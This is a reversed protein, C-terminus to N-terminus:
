GEMKKLPAAAVDKAAKGSTRLLAANKPHPQARTAPLAPQAISAETKPCWHNHLSLTLSPAEGACSGPSRHRDNHLSLTASLAHPLEKSGCPKGKREEPSRMKSQQLEGTKAEAKDGSMM